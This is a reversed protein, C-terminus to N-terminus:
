ASERQIAAVRREIEDVIPEIDAPHNNEFTLDAPLAQWGTESEHAAQDGTLDTGRNTTLRIVLDCLETENIYRIDDYVVVSPASLGAIRHRQIDVWFDIDVSNRAFAGIHQAFDRFYPHPVEGPGDGKEVGIVALMERLPAAMKFIQVPTSNRRFYARERLARAVTSKGAGSPGCIGVVVHPFRRM